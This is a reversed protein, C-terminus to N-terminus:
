YNTGLPFPGYSVQVEVEQSTGAFEGRGYARFRMYGFESGGDDFAPGEYNVSADYYREGGIHTLGPAHFDKREEVLTSIQNLRDVAGWEGRYFAEIRSRDNGTIINEFNTTHISSIGILTLGLLALLALILVTGEEGRRNEKEM